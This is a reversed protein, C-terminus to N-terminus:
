QDGQSNDDGQDDNDGCPHHDHGNFAFAVEPTFQGTEPDTVGLLIIKDGAILDSASATSGNLTLPVDSLDVTLPTNDNGQDDAKMVDQSDGDEGDGVTVSNGNVSLVDGRIFSPATSFGFITDAVVTNNTFEGLVAVTDGVVLPGSGGDVVITANTDDVTITHSDGDDGPGGPSHDRAIDSSDEGQSDGDQNDNGDQSDGDDRAHESVTLQTGNIATVTGFLLAAPSDTVTEDNHSMVIFHHGSVRGRANIRIKNGVPIRTHARVHKAFTVHIRQNHRTKTGAKATQAFVTLSRHHHAAVLGVVRLKKAHHRVAHHHTHAVTRPAATAVTPVASIAIAAGAGAVAVMALAQQRRDRWNLERM